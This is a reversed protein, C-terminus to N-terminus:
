IEILLISAEKIGIFSTKTIFLVFFSLPKSIKLQYFFCEFIM